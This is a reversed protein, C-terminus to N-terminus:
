SHGGNAIAFTAQFYQQLRGLICSDVILVWNTSVDQMGAGTDSVGFVCVSSVYRVQFLSQEWLKERWCYGSGSKSM